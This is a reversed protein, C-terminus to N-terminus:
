SYELSKVGTGASQDGIVPWTGGRGFGPSVIFTLGSVMFAVGVRHVHVRHRDGSMPSITKVSVDFSAL